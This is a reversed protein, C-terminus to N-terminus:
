FKLKEGKLVPNRFAQDKLGINCIPHHEPFTSKSITISSVTENLQVLSTSSRASVFRISLMTTLPHALSFTVNPNRSLQLMDKFGWVTMLSVHDKQKAVTIEM